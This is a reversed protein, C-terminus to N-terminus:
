SISQGSSVRVGNATMVYEIFTRAAESLHAKKRWYISFGREEEIGRIPIHVLHDASSYLKSDATLSTTIGIANPKRRLNDALLSYNAEGTVKPVFNYKKFVNDTFERFSTRTEDLVLPENKLEEFEIYEKKSFPHVSHILACIVDRRFECSEWNLNKIDDTGAIILSVNSNMSDISSIDSFLFERQILDFEPHQWAFEDIIKSFILPSITYVIVKNMQGEFESTIARKGDDLAMIAKQAYELYIKGYDNLVLNRGVRDFLQVDLDSELRALSNSLTSQSIYFKEACKTLNQMEALACFYQLQLTSIM